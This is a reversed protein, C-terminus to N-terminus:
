RGNLEAFKSRRGLLERPDGVEVIRGKELVVVMDADRISDMRHAVTIITCASFEERIIRQMLGDTTVDVNSTAEDLIIISSRRLLARALTFLQQQGQSLPQSQMNADLGGRELITPWVTLKELAEIIQLDPISGFPDINHRV